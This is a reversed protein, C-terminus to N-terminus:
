PITRPAPICNREYFARDEAPNADGIRDLEWRYRFSSDDIIGNPTLILKEISAYWAVWCHSGIKYVGSKRAEAGRFLIVTGVSSNSYQVPGSDCGAVALLALIALAKTM